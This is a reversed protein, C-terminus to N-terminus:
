RTCFRGADSFAHRLQRSSDGAQDLIAQLALDNQPTVTPNAKAAVFLARQAVSYNKLAPGFENLTWRECDDNADLNSVRDLTMKPQLKANQAELDVLNAERQLLASRAGTWTSGNAASELGSMDSKIRVFVYRLDDEDEIGHNHMAANLAPFYNETLEIQFYAVVLLVGSWVIIGYILKIAFTGSSSIPPLSGLPGNFSGWPPDQLRCVSSYQRINAFLIVPALVVSVFGWWGLFLTTLTYSRFHRGICPRCLDGAIESTRRAYGM